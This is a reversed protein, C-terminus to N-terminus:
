VGSSDTAKETGVIVVVRAPNPMQASLLALVGAHLHDAAVVVVVALDLLTDGVGQHAERLQVVFPHVLDADGGGFERCRGEPFM